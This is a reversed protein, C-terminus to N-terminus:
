AEVSALEESEEPSDEEEFESVVRRKDFPDAKALLEAMVAIQESGYGRGTQHQPNSHGMIMEAVKRDYGPVLRLADKFGHRLSYPVLRPDDSVKGDILRTLRDQM